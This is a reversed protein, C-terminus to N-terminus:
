RRIPNQFFYKAVPNAEDWRDASLKRDAVASQYRSEALQQRMLQNQEELLEEVTKAM